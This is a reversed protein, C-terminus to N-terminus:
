HRNELFGQASQPLLHRAWQSFSAEHKQWIVGLYMVGLGLATLVIPFLMSDKFLDYSLHWFYAAVGFGGFVVFVRRSIIAGILIMAINICFYIFKNLESDSHMSSMGGWFAMVGFLYLWFSYDKQQHSSRFDVYFAFVTMAFGFWMSVAEAHDWTSGAGYIMPSLDMSMYWLTVAIPMVSFPLKYRWLVIAGVVLSILEMIIWRWDIYVHYDRYFRGDDWLGLAVQLGYIALPALAVTFAAMIGAPIALQKRYLFFETLWLGVGAYALSIYFIGWGGFQEWGLTMFLTMAGIAIMGGFYYLVNTFNFSAVQESQTSLFDWLPAIQNPQLLGQDVAKNLLQRNIQM